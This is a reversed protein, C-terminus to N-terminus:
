DGNNTKFPWFVVACIILYVPRCGSTERKGGSGLPSQTNRKWIPSRSVTHACLLSLGSTHCLINVSSCTLNHSYIAALLRVATTKWGIGGTPNSFASLQVDSRTRLATSLRWTQWSEDDNVGRAIKFISFCRQFFRQSLRCLFGSLLCLQWERPGRLLLCLTRLINIKRM